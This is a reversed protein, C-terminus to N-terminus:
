KPDLKPYENAPPNNQNQNNSFYEQYEVKSEEKKNTQEKVYDLAKFMGTKMFSFGKKAYEFGVKGAEVSKDKVNVGFEKM